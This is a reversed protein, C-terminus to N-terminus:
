ILKLVLQYGYAVFNIWIFQLFQVKEQKSNYQYTWM